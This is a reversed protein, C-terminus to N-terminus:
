MSRNRTSPPCSLLTKLTKGLVCCWSRWSSVARDPSKQGLWILGGYKWFLIFVVEMFISFLYVSCFCFSVERLTGPTKWLQHIAFGPILLMSALAM